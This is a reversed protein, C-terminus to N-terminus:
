EFVVEPIQNGHWLLIDKSSNNTTSLTQAKPDYIFYNTMSETLGEDPDAKITLVLVHNTNNYTAHWLAGIPPPAAVVSALGNTKIYIAYGEYILGNQLKSTAPAWIGALKAPILDAGIANLISVAFLSTFFIIKM